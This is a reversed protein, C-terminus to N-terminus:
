RIYIPINLKSYRTIHLRFLLRRTIYEIKAINEKRLGLYGSQVSIDLISQMQINLPLTSFPTSITGYETLMNELDRIIPERVESLSECQLIFHEITEEGKKCLLCTPSSEQKYLKVRKTQLIYSGTILKLKIPLRAIDRSSKIKSRLLPHIKGQELNESNLYHLGSYLPLMGIIQEAWKQYIVKKVLNSWKSKKLPKDLYETPEKLDYKRLTEKLVIFWSCSDNPKVALQRRALEKEVSNEEQHTVNNFFGLIKIDIQAEIPLIGSLIYVAPDAVSKPLSLIQKLMTKQFIELQHLAVGNPTILEM